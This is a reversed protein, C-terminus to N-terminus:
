DKFLLDAEIVTYALNLTTYRRVLSREEKASWEPPIQDRAVDDSDIIVSNSQKESM